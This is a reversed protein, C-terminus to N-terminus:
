LFRKAATTRRLHYVYRKPKLGSPKNAGRKVKLKRRYLKGSRSEYYKEGTQPNYLKDSRTEKPKHMDIFEQKSAWKFGNGPNSTRDSLWDKELKRNKVKVWVGDDLKRKKGGNRQIVGSLAGTKNTQVGAGFAPQRAIRDSTQKRDASAGISDMPHPRDNMEVTHGDVTAPQLPSSIQHMVDAAVRDAEREYKNDVPGVNLKPQISVASSAGSPLSSIPDSLTHTFLQNAQPLVPRAVPVVNSPHPARRALLRQVAHNGITSQLVTVDAATLSNPLGLARQVVDHPLPQTDPEQEAVPSVYVKRGLKQKREVEQM